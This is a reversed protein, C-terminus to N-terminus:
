RQDAEADDPKSTSPLGFRRDSTRTVRGRGQQGNPSLTACTPIRSAQAAPHPVISARGIGAPVAPGCQPGDPESTVKTTSPAPKKDKAAAPAAVALSLLLALFAPLLRRM